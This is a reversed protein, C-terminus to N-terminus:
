SVKLMFSCDIIKKSLPKAIKLVKVAAMAFETLIEDANEDKGLIPYGLYSTDDVLDLIGIVERGADECLEIMEHFGGVIIIQEM